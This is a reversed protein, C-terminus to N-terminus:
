RAILPYSEPHVLSDWELDVDLDPWELHMGGHLRVNVIQAITAKKFWPYESYSLFFERERVLIWIGNETVSLIEIERSITKGNKKSKRIILYGYNMPTNLTPTSTQIAMVILEPSVSTDIHM